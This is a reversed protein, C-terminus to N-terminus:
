NITDVTTDVLWLVWNVPLIRFVIGVFELLSTQCVLYTFIREKKREHDQVSICIDEETLYIPRSKYSLRTAHTFPGNAALRFSLVIAFVWPRASFTGGPLLIMPSLPYVDISKILVRLLRSQGATLAKLFRARARWSVKLLLSLSKLHRASRKRWPSFFNLIAKLDQTTTVCTLM